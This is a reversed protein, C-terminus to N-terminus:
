QIEDTAIQHASRLAPGRAASVASAACVLSWLVMALAAPAYGWWQPILLFMSTRGRAHADIGGVILRWALVAVVVTFAIEMVCDLAARVRAPARATFFDVMVNAGRVQCWPLFFAIAVGVLMEVIENHGLIPSGLRAAVVAVVTVLIAVVVVLGGAVAFGESVAALARRM